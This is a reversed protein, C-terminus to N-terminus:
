MIKGFMNIIDEKWVRKKVKNIETSIRPYFFVLEFSTKM